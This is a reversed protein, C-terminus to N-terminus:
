AASSSAGSPLLMSTVNASGSHDPARLTPKIRDQPCRRVTTLVRQADDSLRKLRRGVVLRIGEPVELEAVRLDTLWRGDEDFLRGEESLHYFAEETFFPNGETEAYIITALSAPPPQGSLAELMQNVGDEGLRGLSLKQARRERTLTELMEAFPRAVDLDLEIPPPIDPFM